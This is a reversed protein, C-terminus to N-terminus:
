SAPDALFKGLPPERAFVREAAGVSPIRAFKRRLEWSFGRSFRKRGDRTRRERRARRKPAGHRMANADCRWSLDNGAVNECWEDNIM